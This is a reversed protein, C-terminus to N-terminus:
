VQVDPVFENSLKQFREMEDASRANMNVSHSIDSGPIFAAPISFGLSPLLASSSLADQYYNDFKQKEPLPHYPGFHSWPLNSLSM